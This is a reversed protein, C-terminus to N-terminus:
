TRIHKDLWKWRDKGRPPLGGRLLVEVTEWFQKKDFAARRTLNILADFKGAQSQLRISRVTSDSIKLRQAIAYTSYDEAILLISALRKVFMTKETDTFLAEFLAATQKQNASSFIQALQSFLQEQTQHDLKERSVRTM